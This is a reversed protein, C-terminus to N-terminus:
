HSRKSLTLEVTLASAHPTEAWRIKTKTSLISAMSPSQPAGSGQTRQGTGHSEQQTVEKGRISHSSSECIGGGPVGQGWGVATGRGPTAQSGQLGAQLGCCHRCIGGKM